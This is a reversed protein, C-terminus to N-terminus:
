GYWNGNGATFGSVRWRTRRNTRLSRRRIEHKVEVEGDRRSTPISPPLLFQCAQWCLLTPTHIHQEKLSLSIISPIPIAIRRKSHIWTRLIICFHSSLERELDISPRIPTLRKQVSYRLQHEPVRRRRMQARHRGRVGHRSLQVSSFAKVLISAIVVFFVYFRDLRDQVGPVLRRRSHERCGHSVHRGVERDTKLMVALTRISLFVM